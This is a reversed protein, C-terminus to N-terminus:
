LIGMAENEAAIGGGAAAAAAAFGLERSPGVAAM